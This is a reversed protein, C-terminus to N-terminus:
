SSISELPYPRSYAELLSDSVQYNIRHHHANSVISSTRGCVTSVEAGSADSPRSTVVEKKSEDNFDEKQRYEEKRLFKGGPGRPRRKAHKHRSENFYPGRVAPGIEEILKQRAERRKLIRHLQKPNVYRCDSTEHQQSHLPQQLVRQNPNSLAASSEAALPVHNQVFYINTQTNTVPNFYSHSLIPTTGGIAPPQVVNMQQGPMQQFVHYGQPPYLMTPLSQDSRTNRPDMIIATTDPLTCNIVLKKNIIIRSHITM